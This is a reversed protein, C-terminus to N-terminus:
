ILGNRLLVKRMALSALKEGEYSGVAPAGREAENLHEIGMEVPDTGIMNQDDEDSDRELEQPFSSDEGIGQETNSTRAVEEAIKYLTAATKEMFLNYVLAGTVEDAAVKESAVKEHPNSGYLEKYLQNLSMSAEKSHSTSKEDKEEEEEEEESTESAKKEGEEDEEEEEKESESAKKEFAGFDLGLEAALKTIEDDIENPVNKNSATKAFSNDAGLDLDGRGELIDKLSTTMLDEM